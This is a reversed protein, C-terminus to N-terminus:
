LIICGFAVCKHIVFISMIYYKTCIEAEEAM